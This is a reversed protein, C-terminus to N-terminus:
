DRVLGSIYRFSASDASESQLRMNKRERQPWSICWTQPMLCKLSAKAVSGVFHGCSSQSARTSLGGSSVLNTSTLVLPLVNWHTSHRPSGSCPRASATPEWDLRRAKIIASVALGLSGATYVHKMHVAEQLHVASM